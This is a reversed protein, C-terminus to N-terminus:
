FGSRKLWLHLKFKDKIAKLTGSSLSHAAAAAAWTFLYLLHFQPQPLIFRPLFHTLFIRPVHSPSPISYGDLSSSKQHFTQLLQVHVTDSQSGRPLQRQPLVVAQSSSSAPSFIHPSASELLNQSAALSTDAAAAPGPRLHLTLTPPACM